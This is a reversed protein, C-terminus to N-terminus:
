NATETLERVSGLTELAQVQAFLHAPDLQPGAAQVCVRFKQWLEETSLPRSSHGKARKVKSSEIVAGSKLHLKVQDYKSFGRADPDYDKNVVVRVREMLSQVAPDRVFEDQLEGIGASRAILAAAMAFEISFKAELATQPSHNRLIVAHTDSLSVEVEEVEDPSIPQKALLELIADLNRHTCYCLPYKKVSIGHELVRWRRGLNEASSSTDAEGSPSIANLFGQPHELADQAATMGNAALRAALIGASAARGAHFPKTMTGFNAMLGASESAAIAVAHASSIADLGRLVACAAGAAVAGFVGTPHWGKQHHHGPERFVLEAWVEYGSVYATIVAEGDAGLVEAEALIAPVLVTSPHGRLAVDDFDLAHAAAGNILAVDLARARRAGLLISAEEPGDGLVDILKTVVPENSGAIMVGLVDAIGIKAAAISGAPLDSFTINNLFTGITQTLSSSM